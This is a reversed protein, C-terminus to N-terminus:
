SCSEWPSLCQSRRGDRGAWCNKEVNGEIRAVPRQQNGQQCPEGCHSTLRVAHQFDWASALIAQISDIAQDRAATCRDMIEASDCHGTRQFDRAEVHRELQPEGIGDPPFSLMAEEDEFLTRVPKLGAQAVEIAEIRVDM